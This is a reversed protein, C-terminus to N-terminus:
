AAGGGGKDQIEEMVICAGVPVGDHRELRSVVVPM